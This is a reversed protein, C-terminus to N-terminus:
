HRCRPQEGSPCVNCSKCDNTTLPAVDATRPQEEEGREIRVRPQRAWVKGIAQVADSRCCLTASRAVCPGGLTTNTGDTHRHTLGSEHREGAGSSPRRPRTRFWRRSMVRTMPHTTRSVAFFELILSTRNTQNGVNEPQQRSKYHEPGHGEEELLELTVDRSNLSSVRFVM